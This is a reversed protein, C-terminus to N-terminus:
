KMLLCKKRDIFKGAKMLIFYIGSSCNQANWDVSYFGADYNGKALQYVLYGQPNYISINVQAARPLAFRITTTPNFPNPYNPYLRFEHPFANDTFIDTETLTFSIRFPQICNTTDRGSVAKIHWPITIQNLGLEMMKAAIM